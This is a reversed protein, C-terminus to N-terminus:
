QNRLTREVARLTNQVDVEIFRPEPTERGFHTAGSAALIPFAQEQTLGSSPLSIQTRWLLIKRNRAYEAPEFASCILFYRDELVAELLTDRLRHLPNSALFSGGVLDLMEPLNVVVDYRGRSVGSADPRMCGWYYEIVLDPTEGARLGEYGNVRLAARVLPSIAALPMPKEGARVGGWEHYGGSGLACRAPRETTPPTLTRGSDTLFSYVIVQRPAGFVGFSLFFAFAIFARHFLTM